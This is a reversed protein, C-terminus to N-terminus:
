DWVRRRGAWCILARACAFARMCACVCVCLCVRAEIDGFGAPDYADAECCRAVAEVGFDQLM